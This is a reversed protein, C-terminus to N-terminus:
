TLRQHLDRLVDDSLAGTLEKRYRAIFPITNGEEILKLTNEVQWAKLQFEAVLKEQINMDEEKKRSKYSMGGTRINEPELM